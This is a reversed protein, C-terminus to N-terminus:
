PTVHISMNNRLSTDIAEAMDATITISGSATANTDATTTFKKGIGNATVTDGISGDTTATMICCFLTSQKVVSGTADRQSNDITYFMVQRNDNIVTQEIPPTAKPLASAIQSQAADENKIVPQFLTTFCGIFLAATILGAAILVGLKKRRKMFVGRIRQEVVKENRGLVLGLVSQLTRGQSSLQILSLAYSKKLQADLNKVVMSDCAAEMDRCFHRSMLWVVPNFWYVIEILRLLLVVLHDRRKYHMLEHKIVLALQQENLFEHINQPLIITPKCGITLAPTTIHPLMLLTLHNRVGLEERCVRLMQQIQLSPLTGHKKIQRQIGSLTVFLKVSLLLMGILWAMVVYDASHASSVPQLSPTYTQLARVSHEPIVILRIGSDITFPICLRAILLFWIIFHLTPPIKNKFAKKFVILIFYLLVATFSIEIIRNLNEM